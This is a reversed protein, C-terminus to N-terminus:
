EEIEVDDLVLSVNVAVAARLNRIHELGRVPLHPDFNSLHLSTLTAPLFDASLFVLSGLGHVFVLQLSCLSPM